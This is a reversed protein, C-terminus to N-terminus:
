ERCSSADINHRNILRHLTRRDVGSAHAARSINGNFRRLMGLLYQKEFEDILAQRADKLSLELSVPPIKFHGNMSINDPLDSKHIWEDQALTLAREIANELERVNGPWQYEELCRVARDSIGRVVKSTSKAYKELFYRALHAIDGERERLPPLEISIVNLRYYLDQRLIGDKVAQELKRNSASIIRVDVDILENGGVRRIKRDQLVRLLKVQMAQSLECVEDLFFTGKHAYEFLGPKQRNAGTFAGKEHGFLESEFLNEPFAGCNVPVFAHKSRRSCAHISRAVLEKGTGSEGSVTVNADSTAVRDIREFVDQMAMSKGALGHFVSRAKAQRNGNQTQQYLKRHALAREVVAHLQAAKIPKEVFDFAGEQVAQATAAIKDPTAVVIVPVDPAREKATHLLELSDFDPLTLDSIIVDVKGAELQTVAATSDSLQLVQFGDSGLIQACGAQSEGPHEVILIRASTQAKEKM